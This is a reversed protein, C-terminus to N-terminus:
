LHHKLQQILKKLDNEKYFYQIEFGVKDDLWTTVVEKTKDTSGDDIIMWIFNKNTQRKMSEFCRTLLKIRNYTPTFVTIQNM